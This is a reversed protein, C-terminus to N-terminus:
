CIKEIRNVANELAEQLSIFRSTCSDLEEEITAPQRTVESNGAPQPDAGYFRIALNELYSVSATMRDLINNVKTITTRMTTSDPTSALNNNPM